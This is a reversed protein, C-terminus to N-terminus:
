NNASNPRSTGDTQRWLLPRDEQYYCLEKSASAIFPPLFIAVLPGQVAQGLARVTATSVRQPLPLTGTRWVVKREKKPMPLISGAERAM